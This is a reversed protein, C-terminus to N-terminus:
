WYVVYTYTHICMCLLAIKVFFPDFFISKRRKKKEEIFVELFDRTLHFLESENRNMAVFYEKTHIYRIYEIMEMNRTNVRNGTKAKLFLTATLM